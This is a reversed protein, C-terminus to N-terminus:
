LNRISPGKRRLKPPVGATSSARMKLEFDLLHLAARHKKKGGGFGTLLIEAAREGIM